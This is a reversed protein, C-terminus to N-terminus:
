ANTDFLYHTLHHSTLFPTNNHNSRRPIPTRSRRIMHRRPPVPLLLQKMIIFIALLINRIQLFRFFLVWKGDVGVTQHGVVNMQQNFGVINWQLSDDTDKVGAVGNIEVLFIIIDPMHELPSISGSLDIGWRIKNFRAPIDVVIRNFRFEGDMGLCVGPATIREVDM